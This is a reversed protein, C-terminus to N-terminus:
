GFSPLRIRLVIGQKDEVLFSCAELISCQLRGWDLYLIPMCQQLFWTCPANPVEHLQLQVLVFTFKMKWQLYVLDKKQLFTGTRTMIHKVKGIIFWITSLSDWSTTCHIARTMVHLLWIWKTIKLLTFLLYKLWQLQICDLQNDLSITAHVVEKIVANLLRQELIENDRIVNGTLPGDIQLFFHESKVVLEKQEISCCLDFEEDWFKMQWCVDRGTLWFIWEVIPFTYTSGLSFRRLSSPWIGISQCRACSLHSWPWSTVGEVVVKSVM